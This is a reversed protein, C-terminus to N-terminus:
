EITDNLGIEKLPKYGLEGKWLSIFPNYNCENGFYWKGLKTKVPLRSDVCMNRFECKCCIPLFYKSLNWYERVINEKLFAEINFKNLTGFTKKFNPHLKIENNRNVFLKKNLFTNSNISDFFLDYNVNLINLDLRSDNSNFDYRKNYYILIIKGYSIITKKEYSPNYFFLSIFVNTTGALEKLLGKEILQEPADFFFELYKVPTGNIFNIFTLLESKRFGDVFHLQYNFCNFELLLNIKKVLQKDFSCNEIVSNSIQCPKEKILNLEPFRKFFFRDKSFFIYENGILLNFYSDLIKHESIEFSKYVELIKHENFKKLLSFLANPILTYQERQLDYIISRKIGEVPICNTFLKFYM